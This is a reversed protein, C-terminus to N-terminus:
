RSNGLSVLTFLLKIISVHRRRVRPTETQTAIDNATQTQVETVRVGIRDNKRQAYDCDGTTNLSQM